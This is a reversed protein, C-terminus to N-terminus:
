QHGMFYVPEVDELQRVLWPGLGFHRYGATLAADMDDFPGRVADGKIVVWRGRNAGDPGILDALGARFIRLEHELAM